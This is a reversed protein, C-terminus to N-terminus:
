PFTVGDLVAGDRGHVDWLKFTFPGRAEHEAADLEVVIRGSKGPPIPTQPWPKLDFARESRTPLLAAGAPTWPLPGRNLLVVELVIRGRGKSGVARYGTYSKADLTLSPRQSVETSTRAVVGRDGLQGQLILASLGGPGDSEAELRAKEVLCQRAEERAQQEGRRYSDVTREHRSVEVQREAQSPHVVLTFTVHSPAAESQFHVTVPVREGDHLAESPVLSLLTTGEEVRLFRERGEIEVRALKVDFLFSLILGPRICVEPPDNPADADLEIHRPETACVPLPRETNPPLSAALLMLASLAIPPTFV